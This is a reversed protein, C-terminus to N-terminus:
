GLELIRGMFDSMTTILVVTWYLLPNFKTSSLQFTLSIFFLSRLLVISLAYGVNLTMVTSGRCDGRPDHCLNGHGWFALMVEAVKNMKM